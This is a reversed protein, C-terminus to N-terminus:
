SRARRAPVKSYYALSTEKLKPLECVDVSGTMAYGPMVEHIHRQTSRQYIPDQPCQPDFVVWIACDLPVVYFDSTLRRKM